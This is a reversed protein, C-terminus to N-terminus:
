ESLFVKFWTTKHLLSIEQRKLGAFEFVPKMMSRSHCRSESVIEKLPCKGYLELPSVRGSLGKGAKAKTRIEFHLHQNKGKMNKANGSNGSLAILQGAKIKDGLEVYSYDLHAYFAYYQKGKQKDNFQLVVRLGYDGYNSVNKVLSDAVAFVPTKPEAFFDWGQHPKKTGDSRKRVMGFTHNNKGCRIQNMKLPWQILQM